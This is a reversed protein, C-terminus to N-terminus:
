KPSFTFWPSGPVFEVLPCFTDQVPSSQILALTRVALCCQKSDELGQQCLWVPVVQILKEIRTLSETEVKKGNSYEDRQDTCTLVEASQEYSETEPHEASEGVLLQLFTSVSFPFDM